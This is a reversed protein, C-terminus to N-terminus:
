KTMYPKASGDQEPSPVKFKAGYAKNLENVRQQVEKIKEEQEAKTGLEMEVLAYGCYLHAKLTGSMGARLSIYEELFGENALFLVGGAPNWSGKSTKPDVCAVTTEEINQIHRDAKARAHATESTIFDVFENYTRIDSM